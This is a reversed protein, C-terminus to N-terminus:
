APEIQIAPPLGPPEDTSAGAGLRFPMPQEHRSSNGGRDGVLPLDNLYAVPAKDDAIDRL